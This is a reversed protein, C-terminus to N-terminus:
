NCTRMTINDRSMQISSPRIVWCEKEGPKDDSAFWVQFYLQAIGKQLAKAQPETLPDLEVSNYFFNQHAGIQPGHSNQEKALAHAKRQAIDFENKYRDLENPMCLTLTAFNRADPVPYSTLNELVYNFGIKAGPAVLSEGKIPVVDGLQLAGQPRPPLALNPAIEPSPLPFAIPPAKWSSAKLNIEEEHKRFQYLFSLPYVSSLVLFVILGIKLSEVRNTVANRGHRLATVGFTLIETLVFGGLIQYWISLSTASWSALWARYVDWLLDASNAVTPVLILAVEVIAVPVLSGMTRFVQKIGLRMRLLAGPLSKGM